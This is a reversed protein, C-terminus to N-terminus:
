RATSSRCISKKSRPLARHPIRVLRLAAPKLAERVADGDVVGAERQGIAVADEDELLAPGLVAEAEGDRQARQPQQPEHGLM